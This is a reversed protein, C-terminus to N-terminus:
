GTNALRTPRRTQLAHRTIAAPECRVLETEEDIAAKVLHVPHVGNISLLVIRTTMVMPRRGM